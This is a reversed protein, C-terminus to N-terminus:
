GGPPRPLPVSEEGWFMIACGLAIDSTSIQIGPIGSAQPPSEPSSHLGRHPQHCAGGPGKVLHQLDPSKLNERMKKEEKKEERRYEPHKQGGLAANLKKTKRQVKKKKQRKDGSISGAM